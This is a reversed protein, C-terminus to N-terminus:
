SPSVSMTTRIEQTTGADVQMANDVTEDDEPESESLVIEKIKRKGASPIRSPVRAQSGWTPPDLNQSAEFEPEVNYPSPWWPPIQSSGEPAVYVDDSLIDGDNSTSQM